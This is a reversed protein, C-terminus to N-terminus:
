CQSTPRSSRRWSRSTGCGHGGRTPQIAEGASPEFRFTEAAIPQDLTIALATIKRFSEGGRVATSALLIGHQADIELEYHDAGTGLQGLGFSPGFPGDVPRPTTRAAITPRGATKSRGTM